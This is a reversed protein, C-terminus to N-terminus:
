KIIGGAVVVMAKQDAKQQTEVDGLVFWPFVTMVIFMSLASLNAM